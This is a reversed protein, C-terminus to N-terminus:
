QSLCNLWLFVNLIWNDSLSSFTVQSQRCNELTLIQKRFYRSRTVSGTFWIERSHAPKTKGGWGPTICDVVASAVSPSKEQWLRCVVSWKQDQSISKQARAGGISVWIHGFSAGRRKVSGTRQRSDPLGARKPISSPVVCSAYSCTVLPLHSHIRSTSVLQIQRSETKCIYTTKLLVLISFGIKCLSYFFLVRSLFDYNNLDCLETSTHSFHLRMKLFIHIQSKDHTPMLGVYVNEWIRYLPWLLVIIIFFCLCFFDIFILVSFTNLEM